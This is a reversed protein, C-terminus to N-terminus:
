HVLGSDAIRSMLIAERKRFARYESALRDHPNRSTLHITRGQLTITVAVGSPGDELELKFAGTNNDLRLVKYGLSQAIATLSILPEQASDKLRFWYDNVFPQEFFREVELRSLVGSDDFSVAIIARTNTPIVGATIPLMRGLWGQRTDGVSFASDSIHFLWRKDDNGRQAGLASEVESRTTQGVKLRALQEDISAESVMQSSGCGAVTLVGAIALLYLFGQIPMPHM